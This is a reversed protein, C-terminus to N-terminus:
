AVSELALAGAGVLGAQPGLHALEIRVRGCAPPLARKRVVARMPGLLLEGAAAAGGGVLVLEPDLINVLATAGRGLMRGVRAIAARAAPDGDRARDVAARGDAAGLRRAGADLASGSGLVDLHGVGACGDVCRPGHSDVTFHGLEGAIGTAGRHLRGGLVIGGGVATGVTLVVLHEVGIGAGARHEGVAAANGDNEVCVPVGLERELYARLPFGDLPLAGAWLLTGSGHDVTAACAVGVAATRESWAASITSVLLALLADRDLGATAEPAMASASLDERVLGCLLKSQGLDVAVVEKM